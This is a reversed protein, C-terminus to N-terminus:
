LLVYTPCEIVCIVSLDETVWRRSYHFYFCVLPVYNFKFAKTYCLFSYVLYFSGVSHLFIIAFSVVSLPNIELIHLCSM